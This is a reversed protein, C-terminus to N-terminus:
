WESRCVQLQFISSVNKNGRELETKRQGKQGVARWRSMRMSDRAWGVWGVGDTEREIKRYGNGGKWGERLSWDMGQSKIQCFSCHTFGTERISNEGPKVFGNQQKPFFIDFGKDLFDIDWHAINAKPCWCGGSLAGGLSAWRLIGQQLAARSMTLEESFHITWFINGCHRRKKGM